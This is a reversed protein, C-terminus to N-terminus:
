NETDSSPTLAFLTEETAKTIAPILAVREDFCVIPLDPTIQRQFENLIRANHKGIIDRMRGREEAVAQTLTTAIFAKLKEDNLVHTHLSTDYETFYNRENEYDEEWSSTHSPATAYHVSGSHTIIDKNIPEDM